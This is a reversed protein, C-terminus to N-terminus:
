YVRYERREGRQQQIWDYILTPDYLELHAYDIGEIGTGDHWEKTKVISRLSIRKNNNLKSGILHMPLNLNVAWKQPAFDPLVGAVDM